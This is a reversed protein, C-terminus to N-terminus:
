LLNNLSSIKSFTALIKAINNTICQKCHIQCSKTFTQCFEGCAIQAGKEPNSVANTNDFLTTLHHLKAIKHTPFMEHWVM